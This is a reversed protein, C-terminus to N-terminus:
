KYIHFDAYEFWVLSNNEVLMFLHKANCLIHLATFSYWRQLVYWNEDLDGFKEWEHGATYKVNRSVCSFLPWQDIFSSSVNNDTTSCDWYIFSSVLFHIFM